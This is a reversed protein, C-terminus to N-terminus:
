PLMALELEEKCQKMAAAAADRLGQDAGEKIAVVDGLYNLADTLLELM